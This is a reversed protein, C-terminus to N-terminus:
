SIQTLLYASVMNGEVEIPKTLKFIVEDCHGGLVGLKLWPALGKSSPHLTGILGSTINGSGCQSDCAEIRREPM